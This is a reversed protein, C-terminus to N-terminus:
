GSWAVQILRPPERRRVLIGRGPPQPMPTCGGLLPGEQRDGSLLLGPTGLDRLRQLLPEFMARSAGGSRRAVLLHLGVDRAQALFELLPLLPNATPTVVLDYDDVVVFLEPGTWWARRRLEDVSVEPGALRSSLTVHLGAVADAVAAASGRTRACSRGSSRARAPRPRASSRWTAARAPSTRSWCTRRQETPRDVLGLPVMLNGGPWGRASLGREASLALPPLLLDLSVARELPPLWIQHVRPAAGELRDVIVSVASPGDSAGSPEDHEDSAPDLEAPSVAVFPGVIERAPGSAAVEPALPASASAVKFRMPAAADVKLYASGPVPPLTYADPVGLVARSEMASFVRLAIRYNLHSELGRGRGLVV